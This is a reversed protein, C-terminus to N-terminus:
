FISLNLVIIKFLLECVMYCSPTFIRDESYGKKLSSIMEKTWSVDVDEVLPNHFPFTINLSPSSFLLFWLSLDRMHIIKFFLAGMIFIKVIKPSALTVCPTNIEEYRVRGFSLFCVFLNISEILRRRPNLILNECTLQKYTISKSNM